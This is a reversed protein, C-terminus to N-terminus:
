KFYNMLIGGAIAVNLSDIKESMEIKVFVDGLSSIEHSVGHSENGLVLILDNPKQCTALPVSKENLTSVIVTRNKKYSILDDYFADILFIAGKTAALVKDNYLDVSGKALIVADYNFAVASRIITGLNGPDNVKDLYVIKHYDKSEKKRAINKCVFVIGEPNDSVALKKIIDDNVQYVATDQKIKPLGVATFIEVVEGYKLAMELNKKGEMLFLGKEQRNKKNRLSAAEKIKPNNKSTIELM